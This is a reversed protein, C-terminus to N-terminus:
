VPMELRALLFRAVNAGFSCESVIRTLHPEPSNLALASRHLTDAANSLAKRLLGIEIQEPTERPEVPGAERIALEHAADREAALPPDETSTEARDWGAPSYEGRQDENFAGGNEHGYSM